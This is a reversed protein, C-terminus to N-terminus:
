ILRYIFCWVKHKEFMSFLSHQSSYSKGYRVQRRSFINGINKYVQDYLCRELMKSVIYLISVPIYSEKKM